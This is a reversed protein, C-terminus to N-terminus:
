LPKAHDIKIEFKMNYILVHAIFRCFSNIFTIFIGIFSLVVLSCSSHSEDICINTFNMKALWLTTASVMIVNDIDCISDCLIDLYGVGLVMAIIVSFLLLYETIFYDETHQSLEVHFKLKLVKFKLNPSKPNSFVDNGPWKENYFNIFSIPETFSRPIYSPPTVPYRRIQVSDELKDLLKKVGCFEDLLMGEMPFMIVTCNVRARSIALYLTEEDVSVLVKKGLKLNLMKEVCNNQLTLLVIVAPWETSYANLLLWPRIKITRLLGDYIREVISRTDKDAQSYIIGVDSKELVKDNLLKKLETEFISYILDNNFNHLVHITTKPGHIYHGAAQVPFTNEVFDSQLQRLEIIESRIVSLAKSLDFTNRLNKSLSVLQSSLLKNGFFNALNLNCRLENPASHSIGQIMDCGVWVFHTSSLRLLTEIFDDNRVLMGDWSLIGQMDDIFVNVSQLSACMKTLREVCEIHRDFSLGMFVVTLIQYRLFRESIYKYLKSPTDTISLAPIKLFGHKVGSKLLTTYYRQSSVPHGAFTTANFLIVKNQDSSLLLQLIKALIVVTKGAGAPGNIWLFKEDSHILDYQQKTLNDIGLLHKYLPPTPVVEPNNTRFTFRGSRLQEDVHQICRGLSCKSKDCTVKDTCWIALLVNRVDQHMARFNSHLPEDM